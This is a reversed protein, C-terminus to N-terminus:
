KILKGGDTEGRTARLLWYDLDVPIDFATGAHFGGEAILAPGGAADNFYSTLRERSAAVFCSHVKRFKKERCLHEADFQVRPFDDAQAAAENESDAEQNLPKGRFARFFAGCDAWLRM